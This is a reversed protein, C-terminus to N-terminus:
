KVRHFTYIGITKYNNIDTQILLDSSKFEYNSMYGASDPKSWDQLKFVTFKNTSTFWMSYITIDQDSSFISCDILKGNKNDYGIFEYGERIIKGKLTTTSSCVLGNGFSKYEGTCITDNFADSKWLGILQKMLDVHNLKSPTTQAQIGTFNILLFIAITIILCIKKM